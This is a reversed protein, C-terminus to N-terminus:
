QKGTMSGLLAQLIAILELSGAVEAKAIKIENGDTEIIIQRMPAKEAKPENVKEKKVDKADEVKPTKKEDNM